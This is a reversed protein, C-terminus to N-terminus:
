FKDMVNLKNSLVDFLAVEVGKKDLLIINRQPNIIPKPPKPPPPVGDTGDPKFWLQLQKNVNSAEKLKFGQEKLLKNYAIADKVKEPMCIIFEGKVYDIDVSKSELIANSLASANDTVVNSKKPLKKM